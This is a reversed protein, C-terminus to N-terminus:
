YSVTTPLFKNSDLAPVWLHGPMIGTIANNILSKFPVLEVSDVRDRSQTIVPLNFHSAVETDGHGPFHKAVSIIGNDQLGKMYMLTKLSVNDQNEGFSRFNIVPNEPNNDVDAVPALNVPIGARKFQFAVEKGMEYILSDNKVAGLTMQFPFKVINELRMGIGYEGDTVIMLPVKSINQFYNIMEAQKPANNQFFIVGGIGTKKILESLYVEHSIDRNSFAAVWILQAVRKEITLSKMVSDVWPHNLYKLFPPDISQSTANLTIIGLITNLVFRQITKNM